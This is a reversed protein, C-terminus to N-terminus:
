ADALDFDVILLEEAIYLISIGLSDEGMMPVSSALNAM